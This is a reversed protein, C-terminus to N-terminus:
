CACHAIHLEQRQRDRSWQRSPQLACLLERGSGAKIPISGHPMYKGPGAAVDGPRALGCAPLARTMMLRGTCTKLSPRFTVM